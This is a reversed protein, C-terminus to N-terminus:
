AAADAPGEPQLCHEQLGVDGPVARGEPVGPRQRPQLRTVSEGDIEITGSDVGDLGAIIRLLASKGAGSPGAIVCLEGRPVYLDIERLVPTGGHSKVIETLVLSAM